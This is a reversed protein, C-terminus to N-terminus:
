TIMSILNIWDRPLEVVRTRKKGKQTAGHITDAELYSHGDELYTYNVTTVLANEKTKKVVTLLLM